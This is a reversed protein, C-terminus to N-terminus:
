RTRREFYITAPVTDQSVLRLSLQNSNFLGEFCFSAGSAIPLAVGAGDRRVEISLAFVDNNIVEVETCAGEPLSVFNAGVADTTVFGLSCNTARAVTAGAVARLAVLAADPNSSGFMLNGYGPYGLTNACSAINVGGVLLSLEKEGNPLSVFRPVIDALRYISQRTGNVDDTVTVTTGSADLIVTLM